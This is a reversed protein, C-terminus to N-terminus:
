IVGKAAHEIVRRYVADVYEPDDSRTVAEQSQQLLSRARRNALKLAPLWPVQSAALERVVADSNDSNLNALGGIARVSELREFDRMPSENNPLMYALVSHVARLRGQQEADDNAAVIMALCCDAIVEIPWGAWSEPVAQYGADIWRAYRTAFEKVVSDARTLALDLQDPQGREAEGANDSQHKTELTVVPKVDHSPDREFAVLLLTLGLGLGGLGYAAWIGAGGFEAVLLAVISAVVLLGGVTGVAVARDTKPSPEGM